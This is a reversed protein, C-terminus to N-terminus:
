AQAISAGRTPRHLPVPAYSGGSTSQALQVAATQADTAMQGDAAGVIKLVNNVAETAALTRGSITNMGPTIVRENFGNLADAVAGSNKAAALLDNLGGQFSVAHGEYQAVHNVVEQLVASVEVPQISYTM